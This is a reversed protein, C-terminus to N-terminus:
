VSGAPDGEASQEQEAEASLNRAQKSKLYINKIYGNSSEKRSM